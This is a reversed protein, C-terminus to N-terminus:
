ILVPTYGAKRSLEFLKPTQLSEKPLLVITSECLAGINLMVTSFTGVLVISADQADAIIAEEAIRGKKDLIDVGIKLLNRERPHAVYVDVKLENVYKELRSIQQGNMVEEFPAGLFYVKIENKDRSLSEIWGDLYFLRGVDVINEYGKYLTYHKNIRKKLYKLPLANLLYQYALFRKNRSELHYISKTNINATGDDFTILKSKSYKRVLPSIFLNEISAFVLIDYASEKYWLRSKIKFLITTLISFKKSPVFLYESKKSKLFLKNYYYRDETSDNETFYLVDFTDINEKELVKEVLWAQFPTRIIVLASM